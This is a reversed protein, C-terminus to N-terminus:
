STAQIFLRVIERTYVLVLLFYPLLGFGVCYAWGKETWIRLGQITLTITWVIPILFGLGVVLVSVTLSPNMSESYVEIFTGAGDVLIIPVLTWCAFGFWHEWQIDDIRFCRAIVFFYTGLLVVDLVYEFAAFPVRVLHEMWIHFELDALPHLFWEGPRMQTEMSNAWIIPPVVLWVIAASVISVFLLPVLIPTGPPKIDKFVRSSSLTYIKGIRLWDFKRSPNM